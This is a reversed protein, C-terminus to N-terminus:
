RVGVLDRRSSVRGDEVFRRLSEFVGVGDTGGLLAEVAREPHPMLGLVNGRENIIGAINNIAGNPNAAETDDGAANVYRFVVRKDRELRAITEPDAVYNGMGHAVHYMLVERETYANSFCTENNECRVYV